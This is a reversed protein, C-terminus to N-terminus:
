HDTLSLVGVILQARQTRPSSAGSTFQVRHVSEESYGRISQRARRQRQGHHRVTVLLVFLKKQVWSQREPLDRYSITAGGGRRRDVSM